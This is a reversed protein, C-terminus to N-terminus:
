IFVHCFVNIKLLNFEGIPHLSLINWGITSVTTGFIFLLDGWTLAILGYPHNWPTVYSGLGMLV